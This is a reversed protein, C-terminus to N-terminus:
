KFQRRITRLDTRTQPKCVRSQMARQCCDDLYEVKFLRISVPDAVPHEGDGFANVAHCLLDIQEDTLNIGSDQLNM